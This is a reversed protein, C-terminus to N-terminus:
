SAVRALKGIGAFVTEALEGLAGKMGEGSFSKCM